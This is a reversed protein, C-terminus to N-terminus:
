SNLWEMLTELSNLNSVGLAAAIEQWANPNHDIWVKAFEKSKDHSMQRLLHIYHSQPYRAVSLLNFAQRFSDLHLLCKLIKDMCSRESYIALALEPDIEFVLDGVSETLQIESGFLRWISNLDGHHIVLHIFEISEFTTWSHGTRAAELLNFYRIKKEDDGNWM